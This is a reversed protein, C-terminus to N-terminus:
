SFKVTCSKLLTVQMCVSGIKQADTPYLYCNILLYQDILVCINLPRDRNASVSVDPM